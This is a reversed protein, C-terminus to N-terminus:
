PQYVPTIHVDKYQAKFTQLQAEIIHSFSDDGVITITGSTTTEEEKHNCGVMCMVLTISALTIYFNVKNM